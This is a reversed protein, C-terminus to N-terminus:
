DKQFWPQMYFLIIYWCLLIHVDAPPEGKISHCNQLTAIWNFITIMILRVLVIFLLKHGLIVTFYM